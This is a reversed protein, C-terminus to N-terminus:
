GNNNDINTKCAYAIRSGGNKQQYGGTVPANDELWLLLRKAVM